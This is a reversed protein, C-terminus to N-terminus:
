PIYIEEIVVVNNNVITIKFPLTSIYTKIDSSIFTKFKEFHSDDTLEEGNAYDFTQAFVNLSDSVAFKISDATKNRIYFTKEEIDKGTDVRYAKIAEEGSFYQITDTIIFNQSNTTEADIILVHKIGSFKIPESPTEIKDSSNKSCSLILIGLLLSTITKRIM